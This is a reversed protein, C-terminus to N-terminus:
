NLRMGVYFRRGATPGWILSSDFYPSFPQDWALIPQQQRFGTLNEGGLYVEVKNFKRTVQAFLQAYAPSHSALRYRVPNNETRPLRTRGNYQTTVDFQWKRNPLTYSLVLLGKHRPNLPVEELQSGYTMRVDNFRWATTLELGRAATASLEIQASNSWSRGDLNYLLISRPDQDLDVVVQQLFQTRYFDIAATGPREPGLSFERTVQLGANWAEEAKLPERIVMERSSALIAPNDMFLHPVRYGKGVSLRLATLVDPQYKVHFRPTYFSGYLNHYDYRFGAMASLRSGSKYTYETFLGPVREHTQFLTEEYKEDRQDLTYSLGSSIRHRPGENEFVLNAYLSNEDGTYDKTGWFSEQGHHFGSLILGLSSGSGILTGAKSFFEYRRIRNRSGYILTTSGTRSQDFATQGGDRTDHLVKFGIQGNRNGSSFKWRNLASLQTVLPMDLFTDRDDDFRHGNYSGYALLMTSVGPAIRAATAASLESRAVSSQYLNLAFPVDQEPKKLEVNIQGTISEYGTAVSATGKSIDIADIWFGPLYDLGFPSILGRMLPNKEVLIQTYFGALGLMKIRKAGSVADTQEVDVSLNNEFSEALNCCALTRLGKQSISQTNVQAEHLHTSHPKDAEITMEEHRHDPKLYFALGHMGPRVTLTDNEFGVYGAVLHPSVRAIDLRFFGDEDTVTGLTTNAWYVNAHILSITDQHTEHLQIGYVHGCTFTPDGQALVAGAGAIWLSLTLIIKKM